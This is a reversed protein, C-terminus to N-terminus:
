ALTSPQGDSPSSIDYFCAVAASARHVGQTAVRDRGGAAGGVAAVARCGGVPLDLLTAAGARPPFRPRSPFVLAADVPPVHLARAVEAAEEAPDRVRFRVLAGVDVAIREETQDDGLGIAGNTPDAGAVPYVVEGDATAVALALGQNIFAIDTAPLEDRAMRDLRARAAVGDLEYIMPGEARTVTM